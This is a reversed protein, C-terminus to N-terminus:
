GQATVLRQQVMALEDIIHRYRSFIARSAEAGAIEDASSLTGTAVLSEFEDRDEELLTNDDLVWWDLALDRYRIEGTTIVVDTVADFRHCVIRGDPAVFRYANYPRNTWFYGYSRTGAPIPVPTKFSAPREVTFVVLAFRQNAAVLECPFSVSEGGPKQKRETIRTGPPFRRTPLTDKRPM